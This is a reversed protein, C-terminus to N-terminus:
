SWTPSRLHSLPLSSGQWHLLSLLSPNSPSTPFIGQLLYHYSMGTNSGPFNWLSAVTWLTAVLWTCSLVCVPGHQPRPLHAQFTPCENSKINVTVEASLYKSVGLVPLSVASFLGKHYFHQSGHVQFTSECWWQCFVSNEHQIIHVQSIVRADVM